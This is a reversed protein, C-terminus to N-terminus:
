EEKVTEDEVVEVDEKVIKKDSVEIFQPYFRVLVVMIATCIIINPICYTGNYVFSYDWNVSHYWFGATDEISDPLWFEGGAVVHCAYKLLGAVTCGVVMWLIKHSRKESSAYLGSFAGCLGVVTYALVYDLMVQVFPRLFSLPGWKTGANIVYIGGLMQVLSVILGCLVGPLLGRRYGILFIPVMALGISGGNFFVGRWIGGQLADLAFALAAFIAVEALVRTSFKQKKM